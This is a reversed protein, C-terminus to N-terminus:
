EDFVHSFHYIKAHFFFVFSVSISINKWPFTVSVGDKVLEPLDCTSTHIPNDLLLLKNLNANFRFIQDVSSISNGTFDVLELHDLDSFTSHGISKINNHSLYIKTLKVAGQFFSNGIIDIKNYSFDIEEVYPINIFYFWPIKQIENHSANLILLNEYKETFVDLRKYASYSIDLSETSSILLKIATSYDCGGIKIDYFISGLTDHKQALPICDSPVIAAYNECYLEYSYTFARYCKECKNLVCLTMFITAFAMTYGMMESFIRHLNRCVKREGITKFSILYM